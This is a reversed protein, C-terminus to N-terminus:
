PSAPHVENGVSIASNRLECPSSRKRAAIHCSWINFRCPLVICYCSQRSPSVYKGYWKNLSAFVMAASTHRLLYPRKRPCFIMTLTRFIAIKPLQRSHLSFIKVMDSSSNHLLYVAAVGGVRFIRWPCWTILEPRKIIHPTIDLVDTFM